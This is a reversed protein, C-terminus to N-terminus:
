NPTPRMNNNRARSPSLLTRKMQLLRSIASLPRRPPTRNLCHRPIWTNRLLIRPQNKHSLTQSRIPNLLPFKIRRHHNYIKNQHQRNNIKVTQTLKQLKIRALHTIIQVRSCRLSLKNPQNKNSRSSHHNRRSRLSKIPM